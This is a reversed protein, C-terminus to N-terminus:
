GGINKLASERKKYDILNAKTQLYLDPPSRVHVFLAVRNWDFKPEAELIFNLLPCSGLGSRNIKLLGNVGKNITAEIKGAIMKRM